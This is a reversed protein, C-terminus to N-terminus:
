PNSFSQSKLAALSDSPGSKGDNLKTYMRGGAVVGRTGRCSDKISHQDNYKDAVLVM